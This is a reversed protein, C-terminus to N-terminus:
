EKIFKKTAVGHDSKLRILYLGNTYNSVDISFLNSNVTGSYLLQGYMNIIEVTEFAETAEITVKSNAPNPYVNISNQDIFSIIGSAFDAHITHDSNVNNFTFASLAGRDEGDVFLTTIHYGDNATIAFSISEGENVIIEGVPDITGNPAATATIKYTLPQDLTTFDFQNPNSMNDLDCIATIEVNYTTLALLDAFEYSRTNVIVPAGYEVDTAKKYRIQWSTEIGGAAWRIKASNSTIDYAEAQTPIFCTDIVQPIYINIDDLGIVYRGNETSHWHFALYKAATPLNYDALTYTYPNYGTNVPVTAIETFSELNSQEMTVYGFKLTGVTANEAVAWFSAVLDSYNANLEPFVVYADNGDSGAAMSFAKDGNNVYAYSGEVVVHPQAFSPDSSYVYWCPPAIGAVNYATGSYTEFGEEFPIEYADCTTTFYGYYSRDSNGTGCIAKVSFVYDTSTELQTLPFPQYTATVSQVSSSNGAEYYEIIWETEGSRSRWSVTAQDSGISNVKIDTPAYCTPLTKFELDDVYFSGGQDNKFAIYRETGTHGGLYVQAVDWNSNKFVTVSDILTFTSADAPDTMVGVKLHYNVNSARLNFELALTSLNINSAFEPTIAITHTAASATVQLAGPASNNVDSIYPHSSNYTSLKSWCDPMPFTATGTGWTDFDETHPITTITTCATTFQGRVWNTSNGLNCTTRLIFDYTTSPQLGQITVSSTESQMYPTVGEDLNGAIDYNYEWETEDGNQSWHITISTPQLNTYVLNTPADCGPLYDIVLTDLRIEALGATRFALYKADGNYNNLFAEVREWSNTQDAVFSHIMTFTAIDNPDVMAGLQVSSLASNKNLRFAIQLDRIAIEDSLPPLVVCSYESFTTSYLRLSRSSNYGPSAISPDTSNNYSYGLWCAPLSSSAEFSETYPLTSINDCPTTFTIENWESTETDSCVSRLRITYTTNNTLNSIPYDSAPAQINTTEWTTASSEKYELEWGLETGSYNWAIFAEDISYSLLTLDPVYCSVSGCEKMFKTNARETMLTGTYTNTFPNLSATGNNVYNLTSNLTSQHTYMTYHGSNTTRRNNNLITVVLNSTGNYVFASDFSIDVWQDEGHNNLSVRGKFVQTQMAPNIWDTVSDFENKTTHALLITISDKEQAFAAFYQYGIGYINGAAGVETPSFIQQSYSKNNGTSFPLRNQRETGTGAIVFGASDCGTIFSTYIYDSIGGQCNAYVRAQYLTRPELGTLYFQNEYAPEAMWNETGAECYEFQYDRVRGIRGANWTLLASRAGVTQTTLNIPNSCSYAYDIVIDDIYPSNNGRSGVTVIAIHTGEGEYNEFSVEQLEWRNIMSPVVIAVEEFTSIDYPDSMVGVRANVGFNNCFMQFSIMADSLIVGGSIGPSVLATHLNEGTHCYLYASRSGSFVQANSVSPYTADYNSYGIWCEPLNNGSADFDETIPLDNLPLCLTSFSIAPSWNSSTEGCAARVYADYNTNPNLGSVTGNAGNTVHQPTGSSPADGTPVCVIDWATEEGRPTWTLDVGDNRISTFRLNVPSVCVDMYNIVLNDISVSNNSTFGLGRVDSMFAVYKGDGEYGLLDFTVNMWRVHGDAEWRITDVVVFTSGDTPDDMVGLYLFDPGTQLTRMAEFSLELNRAHVNYDLEPLVAICYNENNSSLQLAYRSSSNSIKPFTNVGVTADITGWCIPMRSGSEFPETYPFADIRGCLTTFNYAVTWHSTDQGCISRVYFDYNTSRTLDLLSYRPTSTSEPTAADPDFGALGYVVEWTSGGAAGEWEFTATTVNRNVLTVNRPRGCDVGVISINDIAPAGTVSTGSMNRWLFYIRKTQGSYDPDLIHTATTWTPSGSYYIGGTPKPLANMGAGPSQDASIAGYVPTPDDVIVQMYDLQGWGESMWDFTLIYDNYPPFYVDFFAWSYNANAASYGQSTGDASIFLYNTNNGAPANTPTGIKWNSVSSNSLVWNQNQTNNEFDCSFPVTDTESKTIFQKRLSWLSYVNGGCIRRVYFDYATAKTLGTLQTTNDNNIIVSTGETNPDFNIAGYKLEWNGGDAPSWTINVTNYTPNYATSFTARSCVNEPSFIYTTGSVLHNIQAATVNDNSVASSTTATGAGTPTVSQFYVVSSEHNYNNIGISASLATTGDTFTSFGPGYVFHIVNTTEHLKVQFSFSNDPAYARTYRSYQIVFVRNPETGITKTQITADNKAQLDDWIPALVNSYDSSNLANSSTPQAGFTIMGDACIKLISNNASYPIGCYTFNFPFYVDAFGSSSSSLNILTGDSISDYTGSSATFQYEDAMQACLTLPVLLAMISISLVFLLKKM